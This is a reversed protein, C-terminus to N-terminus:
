RSRCCTRRSAASTGGCRCARTRPSRTRRRWRSASSRTPGLRSKAPTGDLECLAKDLARQDAADLGAVAAAIEGDVNAVARTVGKGLWRPGGDRLETAEFEGTSAGSPVAARGSAGSRLTVEVEVTPNGRSDVIQRAHVRDIQSMPEGHQTQGTRLARAQRRLAARGLGRGAGGGATGGDEISARFRSSSARLALEPDVKLRRVVSVAAFLLDGAADFPRRAPPSPPRRAVRPAQGPCGALREVQAELADLAAQQTEVDFGSSAARRQVKRALLLAPLNEPVEGFIGAERGQEGSKIRDWNRLVAGADPADVAADAADPPFM